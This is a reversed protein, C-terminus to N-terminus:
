IGRSSDECANINRNTNTPQLIDMGHALFCAQKKLEGERTVDPPMPENACSVSCVSTDRILKSTSSNFLAQNIKNLRGNFHKMSWPSTPHNATALLSSKTVGTLWLAFNPCQTASQVYHRLDSFDLKSELTNQGLSNYYGLEVKRVTQGFWQVAKSCTVQRWSSGWGKWRLM